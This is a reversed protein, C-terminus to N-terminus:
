GGKGTSLRMVLVPAVSTRVLQEAVSGLFLRGLGTRGHTGIVLLEAPLRETLGAVERAPSGTLVQIAAEVGAGALAQRLRAEAMSRLIKQQESLVALPLAVDAGAPGSALAWSEMGEIVFVATLAASRRSAEISAAKLAPLSPDTLDTACLVNRTAAIPRAVLVACGAQRLVQEAVGGLLPRTAGPGGGGVVIVDASVSEAAGTIEAGPSGVKVLLEAQGDRRGAAALHEGLLQEARNIMGPLEEAYSALHRQPFLPYSRLPDPVVHLLTLRADHRRALADAQGVVEGAGPGLDTACLIRRPPFPVSTM